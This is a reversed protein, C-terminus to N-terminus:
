PKPQPKPEPKPHPEILAESPESEAAVRPKRAQSLDIWEVRVPESGAPSKAPVPEQWLFVVLLLHLVGSALLGLVTLRIAQKSM